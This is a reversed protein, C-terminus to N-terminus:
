RGRMPAGANATEAVAEIREEDPAIDRQHDITVYPLSGEWLVRKGKYDAYTQQNIKNGLVPCITQPKAEAAWVSGAAFAVLTLAMIPMKFIKM